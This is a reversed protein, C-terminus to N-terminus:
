DLLIIKNGLAQQAYDTIGVTGMNGVVSVWEHKKTFYLTADDLYVPSTSLSRHTGICIASNLNPKCASRGLNTLCQISSIFTLSNKNFNLNKIGTKLCNSSACMASGVTKGVFLAM